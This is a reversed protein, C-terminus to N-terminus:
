DQFTTYQYVKKLKLKKNADYVLKEVRLGKEYRYDSYEILRGSPDYEEEHIKNGDNDYQYKFHSSIKGEKNYKIDELINGKQDYYTESEKLQKKILIDSREELVVLSRIKPAKEQDQGRVPSCFVLIVLFAFKARANKM